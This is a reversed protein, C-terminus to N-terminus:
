NNPVFYYEFWEIYVRCDEIASDFTSLTYWSHSGDLILLLIERIYILLDLNIM